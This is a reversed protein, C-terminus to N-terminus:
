NGAKIQINGAELVYLETEPTAACFWEAFGTERNIRQLSMKDPPSNAGQGNDIVRVGGENFGPDSFAGSTAITGIWAENGIITLCVVKGHSKSERENGHNIREWEGDVSGDAYRRATFSFTRWAGTTFSGSGTVSEVVPSKEKLSGHGWVPAIDKSAPSNTINMQGSGDANMVYIEYSGDRFSDFTIQKGDPSWAPNNWERAATTTTLRTQESGDANMVYVEQNFDRNSIFAIKKGNPSWSPFRDLFGNNTLNTVGTGDGNMVYVEFNGTATSQFAIKKGNPSWVPSPYYYGGANYLVTLDSGDANITCIEPVVGNLRGFLITKGNPSWDPDGDMTPSNTVCTQNTGDIDMVYVELNDDSGSEYAIKKGDPSLDPYGDHGARFTLRTPQSGDSNMVYVETERPAGSQFAIISNGGKMLSMGNQMLSTEDLESLSSVVPNMRRECGSQLVMLIVAILTSYALKKMTRAEKLM